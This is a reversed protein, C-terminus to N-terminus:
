AARHRANGSRKDGYVRCRRAYVYRYSRICIGAVNGSELRVAGRRHHDACADAYHQVTRVQYRDRVASAGSCARYANGNRCHDTNETHEM